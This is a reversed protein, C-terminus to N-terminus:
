SIDINHMNPYNVGFNDINQWVDTFILTQMMIQFGDHKLKLNQLM